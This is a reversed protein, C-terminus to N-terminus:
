FTEEFRREFCLHGAFITFRNMSVAGNFELSEKLSEEDEFEVFCFGKFKDTEKDRVM